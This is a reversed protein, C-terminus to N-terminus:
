RLNYLSTISTSFWPAIMCGLMIGATGLGTGASQESGSLRTTTVGTAPDTITLNGFQENFYTAGLILGWWGNDDLLTLSHAERKRKSLSSECGFSLAGLSGLFSVLAM